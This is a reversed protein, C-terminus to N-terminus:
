IKYIKSYKKHEDICYGDFKILEHFYIDVKNIFKFNNTFNSIIDEINYLTIFSGDVIKSATGFNKELIVFNIKNNSSNIISDIFVKMFSRKNETMKIFNNKNFIIKLEKNKRIRGGIKNVGFNRKQESLYEDIINKEIKLLTEKIKESVFNLKEIKNNETNFKYSIFSM